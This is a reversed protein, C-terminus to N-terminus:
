PGEKAMTVTAVLSDPTPLFPFGTLEHETYDLSVTVTFATGPELSSVDSPELTVDYNANLGTRTLTSEISSLVDNNTAFPRVGDRAGARAANTVEGQKTFMWGYELAAFSIMLLVVLVLATEILALGRCRRIKHKLVQM